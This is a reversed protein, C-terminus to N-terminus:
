HSMDMRVTRGSIHKQVSVSTLQFYPAHFLHLVCTVCCRISARCVLLTLPFSSPSPKLFFLLFSLAHVLPPLTISHSLYFPLPPLLFLFLSSCCLSPSCCCFCLTFRPHCITHPQLSFEMAVCCWHFSPTTKSTQLVTVTFTFSEYCMCDDMFM